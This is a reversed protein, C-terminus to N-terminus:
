EDKNCSDHMRRAESMLQDYQDYYPTDEFHVKKAKSLMVSLLAKARDCMGDQYYMQGLTYYSVYFEPFKVINEELLKMAGQRDGTNIVAFVFEHFFEPREGFLLVQEDLIEKSKGVNGIQSYCYATEALIRYSVPNIMRATELYEIAKSYDQLEVCAYALVYLVKVNGPNMRLAELLYILAQGPNGQAVLEDGQKLNNSEEGSKTESTVSYIGDMFKMRTKMDATFLIGKRFYEGALRYDRGARFVVIGKVIYAEGRGPKVSIAQDALRVAGAPDSKILNIANSILEDYEEAFLPMSVLLLFVLIIKKM